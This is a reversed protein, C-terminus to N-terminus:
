RCSMEFRVSKQCSARLMNHWRCHPQLLEVINQHGQQRAMDLATSGAPVLRGLWSSGTSTSRAQAATSRAQAKSFDGRALIAKCVRLQGELAAFHLCTLGLPDIAKVQRFDPRRLLELAVAPLRYHIALSLLSWGGGPLDNLGPVQPLKLLELAEREKQNRIAGFLALPHPPQEPERERDVASTCNLGYTNRQRWLGEIDQPNLSSADTAGSESKAEEAVEEVAAEGAQVVEVAVAAASLAELQITTEALQEETNNASAQIEKVEEKVDAHMTQTVSSLQQLRQEVAAIADKFDQAMARVMADAADANRDISHLKQELETKAEVTAAAAKEELERTRQELKRQMEAMADVSRDISHLKQQLETEVEVTAAAAKEELERTRQELKSQMEAMADSSRDISYLKQQLETKMEVTAAAAQEELERIRQELKGQMEAMAFELKEDFQSLTQEEKVKMETAAAELKLNMRSNVADAMSAVEEKCTTMMDEMKAMFDQMVKRSNEMEAKVLQTRAAQRAIRSEALLTAKMEARERKGLRGPRVVKARQSVPTQSIAEVAPGDNWLELTQVSSANVRCVALPVASGAFRINQHGKQQAIDLATSAAPVLRGLWSSGTSTSRAQAKSFDGRALIAKCVHLQGAEAAWHLCTLGFRDIVNVQGFDPRRLLELAVAPLGYCIAFHLWSWGNVGLNNLGPVQPLKLLELAEREKKNLIAKRLADPHPPQAPEQLFCHSTM